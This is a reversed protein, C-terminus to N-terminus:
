LDIGDEDEDDEVEDESNEDEHHDDPHDQHIVVHIAGGTFDHEHHPRLINEDMAPATQPQETSATLENEPAPGPAASSQDVTDSQTASGSKLETHPTMRILSELARLTVNATDASAPNDLDLISLANLLVPVIEEQQQLQKVLETANSRQVRALLEQLVAACAHLARRHAELNETSTKRLASALEDFIRKRGEQRGCLAVVLKTALRFVLANEEDSIGSAAWPM